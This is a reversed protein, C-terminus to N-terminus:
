PGEWYCKNCWAFGFMDVVVDEPTAHGCGDVEWFSSKSLKPDVVLVDKPTKKAKTKM